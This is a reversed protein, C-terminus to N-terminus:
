PQTGFSAALAIVRAIGDALAIEGAANPHLQDAMRPHTPVSQAGFVEAMADWVLVNPWRDQLGLYADRLRDTYEQASEDPQLYVYYSSNQSLMPNPTRLLIDAKPVGARLREVAEVIRLQFDETTLPERRVDNLGYCLVYLDAQAAIAPTIGHERSDTLFAALTSGDDGYNLTNAGALVGGPACHVTLFREHFNPAVATTSDGLFCITKGAPGGARWRALPDFPQNPTM